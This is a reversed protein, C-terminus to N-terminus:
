ASEGLLIFTIDQLAITGTGAPVVREEWIPISAPHLHFVVTDGLAYTGGWANTPVTFYASGFTSNNPAFSSNINGTGLSGTLVGACSFATSSTFTFTISDEIAGIAHPVVKTLDFTGASSTVTKSDVSCAVSATVFVSSVSTITDTYSNLVAPTFDFSHVSGNVTVTSSITVFEEKTYVGGTMENDSIRIVDGNRFITTSGSEVLVALSTASASISANLLGSGYRTTTVIGSQIDTQTGSFFYQRDGGTTPKEHCIRVNSLTLDDANRIHYFGKRYKTSGATRESDSIYPWFVNTLGSAIVTTGMVGGNSSTDNVTQSQVFVIESSQITM